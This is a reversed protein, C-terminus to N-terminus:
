TSRGSACTSPIAVRSSSWSVAVARPPRTTASAVRGCSRSSGPFEPVEERLEKVVAEMDDSTTGGPMRVRIHGDKRNFRASVRTFGWKKKYSSIWEELKGSTAVADPLTTGKPFEWSVSFTGSHGMRVDNKLLKSQLFFLGGLLVVLGTLSLKRHVIVCDVFRIQWERLSWLRRRLAGAPVVDPTVVCTQDKRNLFAITAPLLVMAVFLSAILAIILPLCMSFAQQQVNPNSSFFMVPVFIAVTTLTALSVANGVGKVGEICAAYWGLGKKRLRDINELVVVSNDVLMGLSLTISTMTFINLTDGRFYLITIAALLSIPLSLTLILTMRIRRLFLFLVLFALLGGIMASNELTGVTNQIFLGKDFDWLPTIGAYEPDKQIEEFFGRVRAATAVTNAGAQKRIMGTLAVKGDVRSVRDRFGRVKEVRAVDRIKLGNGIPLDRVEDLDHYLLDARVLYRSEGERIQGIPLTMNDNGLSELVEQFNVRLQSLKDRDFFIRVTQGVIGWLSVEGVGEIAELKPTIESDVLDHWKQDNDPIGIHFFFMPLTEATMRWTYWRDVHAPWSARARELRDRVEAAALKMDMRTALEAYVRIGGQFCYGTSATIGPITLLQGELPAYVQEEGEQPTMNRTPIWIHIRNNGIMGEPLLTLPIHSLAVAGMVLITVTIMFVLIPRKVFHSLFESM